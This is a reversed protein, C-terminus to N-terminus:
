EEITLVGRLLSGGPVSTVRLGLVTSIAAYIERGMPFEEIMTNGIPSFRNNWVVTPSTPEVTYNQKATGIAAPNAVENAVPTVGTGTGDSGFRVLELLLPTDTQTVSGGGIEITLLRCRRTAGNIWAAVTKATAAALTIDGFPVKYTHM